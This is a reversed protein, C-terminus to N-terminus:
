GASAKRSLRTAQVIENPIQTLPLIRNLIGMEACVRPMGYVACTQEDQGVTFGGQQHIALMGQAGDSGMGTMIVGMCQSRYSSAVSRMMVDVSPTHLQNEPKESLCIIAKSGSRDITLHHGAPAIYVVGARIVEQQVAECVSVACLDDLRSAFPATFGSPMHQVVVIPVPLDAPLAPLIDQLAKPGGTSIGIVVIAISHEGRQRGIAPEPPKSPIVPPQLVKRSAGAAKIKVVLDNRIHLIDLSAASLDKSISDCAGARLAALTAEADQHTVSSVMIVPRPFKNMIRRLAEMGGIGPMEIDLTIVDPDFAPIKQLAEEGSIANGVVKLEPDSTIMRSIATRMFASDDVVLVRLQSNIPTQAPQERM